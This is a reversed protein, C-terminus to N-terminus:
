CVSGGNLVYPHSPDTYVQMWSDMCGSGPTFQNFWTFGRIDGAYIWFAGNDIQAGYDDYFGLRVYAPNGAKKTYWVTVDSSIGPSNATPVTKICLDGNGINRCALQYGDAASAPTAFGVLLGTGVLLAGVLAPIKRM